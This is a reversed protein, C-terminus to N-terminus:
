TDGRHYNGTISYIGVKIIHLLATNSTTHSRRSTSPKTKQRYSLLTAMHGHVGRRPNTLRDCKSLPPQIMANETCTGLGVTLGYYLVNAAFDIEKDWGSDRLRQVIRFSRLATMLQRSGIINFRFRSRLGNSGRRTSIPTINQRRSQM